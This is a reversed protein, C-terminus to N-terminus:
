LSRGLSAAANLVARLRISCAPRETHRVFEDTRTGSGRFLETVRRCPASVRLDHRLVSSAEEALLVQCQPTKILDLVWTVLFSFHVYM